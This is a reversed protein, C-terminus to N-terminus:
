LAVVRPRHGALAFYLVVAYCIMPVVFATQISTADSIRGM